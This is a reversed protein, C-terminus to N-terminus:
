LRGAPRGKGEWGKGEKKSEEEEEGEERRTKRGKREQYENRSKLWEKSTYDIHLWYNTNLYIIQYTKICTYAMFSNVFALYHVYGGRELNKTDKQLGEKGDGGCIIGM